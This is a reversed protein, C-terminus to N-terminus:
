IKGLCVRRRAAVSPLTREQRLAVNKDNCEFESVRSRLPFPLVSRSLSMVARRLNQLSGNGGVGGGNRLKM